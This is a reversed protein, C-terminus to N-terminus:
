TRPAKWDHHHAQQWFQELTVAKLMPENPYALAILLPQKPVDIKGHVVVDGQPTKWVGATPYDYPSGLLDRILLQSRQEIAYLRKQSKNKSIALEKATITLICEQMLDKWDHFEPESIINGKPGFTLGQFYPHAQGRHDIFYWKHKRCSLAVANPNHGQSFVHKQLDIRIGTVMKHKPVLITISGDPNNRFAPLDYYTAIPCGREHMARSYNFGNINQVRRVAPTVYDSTSSPTILFCQVAKAWSSAIKLKYPSSLSSSLLAQIAKKGHLDSLLFSRL